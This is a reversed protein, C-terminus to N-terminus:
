FLCSGRLDCKLHQFNKYLCILSLLVTEDCCIKWQKTLFLSNSNERWMAYLEPMSSFHCVKLFCLSRSQAATVIQLKFCPLSLVRSFEFLKNRVLCDAKVFCNKQAQYAQVQECHVSLGLCASKWFIALNSNSLAM